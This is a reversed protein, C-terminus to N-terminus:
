LLLLKPPSKNNPREVYLKIFFVVNLWALVQRRDLTFKILLALFNILIPIVYSKIVKERGRCIRVPSGFFMPSFLPDINLNNFM